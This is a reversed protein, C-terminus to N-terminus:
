LGLHDPGDHRIVTWTTPTGAGIRGGVVAVGKFSGGGGNGGLATGASDFQQRRREEGISVGASCCQSLPLLLVAACTCHSHGGAVGAAAEPPLSVLVNELTSGQAPSDLRCRFWLSSM